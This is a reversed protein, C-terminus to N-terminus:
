LLKIKNRIIKKSKDFLEIVDNNPIFYFSSIIFYVCMIVFSVFLSVIPVKLLNYVTYFLLVLPINLLLKSLLMNWPFYIGIRHSLAFQASILVVIESSIWVIASGISAMQSVLVFNLVVGVMAGIISNYLIEKDMKLPMLAEIVLIQEYGIILMLPMMIQMPLIAGEYGAGSVYPIIIPSYVITFIILPISITFLINNSKNLLKRFKDYDGESLISSMRPLMVGTFATFIAILIKYIKTATSYYGVETEGCVFGLYITNFSTYMSTLLAYIGLYFFPKLYNTISINDFRFKVFNNSYKLNVISNLAIMLVLLLYYIKYDSPEKVFLFVSVVYLLKITVTRKTIYKFEELGKYFWEILLYNFLLKSAGILMMEWHARLQPITIVLAILVIVAITTTITNLWLLSSFTKSLKDKDNRFRAIERIGLINIGMMSILIFYQIFSDVFNVIGINSVGLVRSVYPFTIIPFLLNATTLISSYVFNKTISSM